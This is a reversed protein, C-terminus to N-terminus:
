ASAHDRGNERILWAAAKGARNRSTSCANCNRSGSRRRQQDFQYPPNVLLLGSGNLGVRSDRPYIWLELSLTPAGVAREVRALWPALTREDKIPYWLAIM